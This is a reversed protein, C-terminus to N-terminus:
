GGDVEFHQIRRSGYDLRKFGIVKFKRGHHPAAIGQGAFFNGAVAEGVVTHEQEECDYFFDDGDHNLTWYGSKNELLSWEEHPKYQVEEGKENTAILIDDFIYLRATDNEGRGQSSPSAGRYVICKVNHLYTVVYTARGNVEGVYNYLMVTQQCMRKTAM